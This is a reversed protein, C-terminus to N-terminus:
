LAEQCTAEDLYEQRTEFVCMDAQPVLMISAFMKSEPMTTLACYEPYHESIQPFRLVGCIGTALHSGLLQTLAWHRRLVSSEAWSISYSGLTQHKGM